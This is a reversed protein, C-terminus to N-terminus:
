STLKKEALTYSRFAGPDKGGHGPDLVITQAPTLLSSFRPSSPM